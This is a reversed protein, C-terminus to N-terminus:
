HHYKRIVGIVIGQISVRDSPEVIIPQYNSNAPELRVRHTERYFRKVTTESGDILAVVTQGNEATERSEVIVFDGDKIHEDIMSDGSVRLAFTRGRGLLDPPIYVTEHSLVAEIPRGAAVTGLLPIEYAEEAAEQRVIEIGRSVNPMRRILGERELASLVQHVTAPSSLGFQERIEAITPAQSRAEIFRCIYDFIERQRPSIAM